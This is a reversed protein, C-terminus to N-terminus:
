ITERDNKRKPFKIGMAPELSLNLDLIIYEKVTCAIVLHQFSFDLIYIYLCNITLRRAFNLPCNYTQM